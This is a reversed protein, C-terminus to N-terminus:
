GCVGATCVQGVVPCTIPVGTDICAPPEGCELTGVDCPNGALTCSAGPSCASCTGAVCVNGAAADCVTADPALGTDTCVPAGSSCSIAAATACPNTSTCAAGTVCATCLGGAGSCVGAETGSSCAAGAPLYSQDTCVPAGTSCDVAATATCPNSSACTAGPSCATCVPPSGGCVGSVDGSTCAAGTARYARITCVPTGSSCEITSTEACADPSTCAAGQACANCVGTAGSCVGTVSGATCAAGADAYTQDTCVPEGSACVLTASAACPNSSACAAGETCAICAGSANCVGATAGTTCATGAAASTATTCVPAGTSCSIAASTACPDASTCAGGCRLFDWTARLQGGGASACDITYDGQLRDATIVPPASGATYDRACSLHNVGLTDFALELLTSSAGCALNWHASTGWWFRDPTNLVEAVNTPFAHTAGDTPACAVGGSTVPALTTTGSFLYLREVADEGAYGLSAQGTARFPIDLTSTVAFSGALDLAPNTPVLAWDSFHLSPVTITRREANRLVAVVPTWYGSVDQFRVGLSDFPAATAGGVFTIAVPAAFTTGSPELRFASGIGGPATNTIEQISVTTGAAVAGPPIQLTLRGDASAITAGDAGVVRSVPGGLPTGAGAPTPRQARKAKSGCGGAAALAVAGLVALRTVNSSM